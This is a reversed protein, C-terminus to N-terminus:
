LLAALEPNDLDPESLEMVEEVQAEIPTPVEVTKLLDGSQITRLDQDGTKIVQNHINTTFNQVIQAPLTLQVINQQNVINELSDTGRRKAGNVVQLAKMIDLPRILLAANSKLRALLTDELEDYNRDRQSHKSLAEFKLETVQQAFSEDSLLQSIYSPSVGLASAVAEQPVGSGLLSLAKDETLNSM